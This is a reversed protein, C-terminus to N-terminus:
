HVNHCDCTFTVLTFCFTLFAIAAYMRVTYVAFGHFRIGRCQESSLYQTLIAWSELEDENDDKIQNDM